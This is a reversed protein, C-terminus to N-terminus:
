LELPNKKKKKPFGAQMNAYAQPSITSDKKSRSTGAKKRKNINYYLGKKAMFLYTIYTYSLM